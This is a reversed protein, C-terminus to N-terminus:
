RRSSMRSSPRPTSEPDLVYAGASISGGRPAAPKESFALVTGDPDSSVAGFPRVDEVNTLALTASARRVRHLELLRTLDVDTVTDGNLVLLPERLASERVASAVAGATGLADPEPIIRIRPATPRTSVYEFFVAEHHPSSLIVTEVGHSALHDLLHTLLPRDVLPLLPKPVAETVPRLRLGQGGVLIVAHLGTRSACM